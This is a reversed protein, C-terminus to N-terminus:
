ASASNRRQRRREIDLGNFTDVLAAMQETFPDNWNATNDLIILVNPLGTAIGPPQVFLDIDEAAAPSSAAWVAAAAVLASLYRQM